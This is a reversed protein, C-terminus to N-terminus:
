GLELVANGLQSVDPAVRVDMEYPERVRVNFHKDM